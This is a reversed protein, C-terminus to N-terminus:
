TGTDISLVGNADTEGVKLSAARMLDQIVQNLRIFGGKETINGDKHRVYYMVKISENTAAAQQLQAVNAKSMHELVELLGEKQELLKKPSKLLFPTKDRPADRKEAYEPLALFDEKTFETTFSTM